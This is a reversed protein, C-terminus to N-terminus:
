IRVWHVPKEKAIVELPQAGRLSKSAGANDEGWSQEGAMGTDLCCAPAPEM